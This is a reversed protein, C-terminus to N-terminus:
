GRPTGNAARREAESTLAPRDPKMGGAGGWAYVAVPVMFGPLDARLAARVAEPDLADESTSRVFAVPRHGFEADAVPVVVAEAVADLRLLAAEIAEPQVNEGGSVFMLDRRGTVVLRGEADLHGLDGTPYWAAPADLGDPAVYGAFLAPGGVEIEGAETIRVERHPLVAGSTALATRSAGPLAATVTSTMETLGYSTAVPVGRRVAEDLLDSPIASGGLLVARLSTLDADADFLRRLQTAVLSAHTPRFRAVAEATTTGAEPVAVAAGALACRVVVGLGGVHYLPLDLLWRDGARLDMWENVGRASWVHNGVTHLAAKPTGTSGSTHVVTWPRGLELDAGSTAEGEGVEEALPVAEPGSPATQGPGVILREVGLRALAGAVAAETWRTSLPVLTRGARLSALVLVVLAPSTRALVAVREPGEGLRRAAAGVRADLEAWTWASADTVLAKAEPRAEAHSRVPDTM